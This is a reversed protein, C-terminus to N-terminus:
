FLRRYCQRVPSLKIEGTRNLKSQIQLKVADGTLNFRWAGNLPRSNKIDPRAHQGKNKSNNLPKKNSNLQM